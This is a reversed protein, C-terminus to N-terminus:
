KATAELIAQLIADESERILNRDSDLLVPAATGMKSDQKQPLQRQQQQEALLARLKDVLQTEVAVAHDLGTYNGISGCAATVAMLIPILWQMALLATGTSAVTFLQVTLNLVTQALKKRAVRTTATKLSPEVRVQVYEEMSLPSYKDIVKESVSEASKANADPEDTSKQKDRDPPSFSLLMPTTETAVAITTAPVATPMPAHPMRRAYGPQYYDPRPPCPLESFDNGDDSTLLGTEVDALPSVLSQPSLERELQPQQEPEVDDDWFEEPLELSPDNPLYSATAEEWIERLREKLRSKREAVLKNSDNPVGQNEGEETNNLTRFLFLEREIKGAAVPFSDVPNQRVYRRRKQALAAVYMPLVLSAGFLVCAWVDGSTQASDGVTYYYGGDGESGLYGRLPAPIPISLYFPYGEYYRAYLVASSVAFLTGLVLQANYAFMWVAHRFERERCRGLLEYSYKPVLSLAGNNPGAMQQKQQQRGGTQSAVSTEGYYSYSDPSYYLQSDPSRTAVTTANTAGDGESSSSAEDAEDDSVPTLGPAAAAAATTTPPSSVDVGGLGLRPLSKKPKEKKPKKEPPPAARHRFIPRLNKKKTRRMGAVMRAQQYPHHGAAAERASAAAVDVNSATPTVAGGGNGNNDGGGSGATSTTTTM